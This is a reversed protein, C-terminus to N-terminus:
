SVKLYISTISSTSSAYNLIDTLAKSVKDKPNDTLARIIDLGQYKSMLWDFNKSKM